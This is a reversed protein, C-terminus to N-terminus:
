MTQLCVKAISAFSTITIVVPMVDSIADKLAHLLVKRRKRGINAPQLRGIARM